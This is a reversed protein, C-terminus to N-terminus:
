QYTVTMFVDEGNATTVQDLSATLVPDSYVNQMDKGFTKIEVWSETSSIQADSSQAGRIILSYINGNLPLTANNRRGIYLPYNGYNGTGQTTAVSGV